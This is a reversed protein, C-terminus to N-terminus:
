PPASNLAASFAFMLILSATFRIFGLPWIVWMIAIYIIVALFM